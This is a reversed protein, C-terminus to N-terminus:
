VAHRFLLLLIDSWFFFFSLSNFTPNITAHSSNGLLYNPNFTGRTKEWWAVEPFMSFNRREAKDKAQETKDRLLKYDLLTAIKVLSLSKSENM